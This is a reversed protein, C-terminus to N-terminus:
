TTYLIVRLDKTYLYLSTKNGERPRAMLVGKFFIHLRRYTTVLQEFSFPITLPRGIHVGTLLRQIISVPFQM